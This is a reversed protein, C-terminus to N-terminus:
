QTASDRAANKAYSLYPSSASARGNDDYRLDLNEDIYYHRGDGPVPDAFVCFNQIGSDMSYRYNNIIAGESYVPSLLNEKVLEAFTGFRKQTQRFSLEASGIRVLSAIVSDESPNREPPAEDKPAAAPTVVTAPEPAAQEGGPWFSILAYVIVAAVATGILIKELSKHM